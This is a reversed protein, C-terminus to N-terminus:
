LRHAIREIITKLSFVRRLCRPGGTSSAVLYLTVKHQNLTSIIRYCIVYQM